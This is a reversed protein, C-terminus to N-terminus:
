NGSRSNGGRGRRQRHSVWRSFGFSPDEQGLKMLGVGLKELDAKTKPEIAIKIVPDPFDM